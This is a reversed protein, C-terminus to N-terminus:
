GTTVVLQPPHAGERSDFIASNTSANLLVLDVTGNGAVAGTLPVDVWAGTASTSGVTGLTTAGPAPANSWTIGGETWGGGAQLVRGSDPSADTVWLRLRVASVPATLGSVDFRLYSRYTDTTTGGDRVRLTTATGYNRTASTSKVNADAVPTFVSESGAPPPPPPPPGTSLRYAFLGKVSGFVVHGDAVAAQGRTFTSGANGADQTFAAAPLPQATALDLALQAGDDRAIYIESGTVVPTTVYFGTQASSPATTGSSCPACGKRLSTPSLKTATSLDAYRLVYLNKDAAVVIRGGAPGTTALAPSPQGSVQASAVVALRGARQQLRYVRGTSGDATAVVLETGVASVTQGWGLLPDSTPGPRLDSLRFTKVYHSTGPESTGMAVYTAPTGTVPDALTVLTPSTRSTAQFDPTVRQHATDITAAPSRANRLPVVFVREIKAVVTGGRDYVPLGVRFVLVGDGAADLDLVPSGSVDSGNSGAAGGPAVHPTDPVPVDRVLTGTALDIQAIAVDSDPAANDDNHVVFLQGPAGGPESSDVFPVSAKNGSGFTDSDGTGQDVNIGAAPGVAAGTALDRLHVNGTSTPGSIWSPKQTGYAVLRRAGQTVIPTTWVGQDQLSTAKWAITLPPRGSEASADSTRAASGGFVPWSAAEASSAGVAALLLATAALATIRRIASM